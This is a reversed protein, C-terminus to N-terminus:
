ALLSAEMGLSAWLGVSEDTIGVALGASLGLMWVLMWVLLWVLWVAQDVQVLLCVRSM